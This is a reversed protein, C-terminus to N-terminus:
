ESIPIITELYEEQNYINIIKEVVIVGGPLIARVIAHSNGIKMGEKLVFLSNSGGLSALARRNEGLYIGKVILQSPSIEINSIDESGLEKLKGARAGRDGIKIPIKFPDRLSLPDPIDTKDKFFENIKLTKPKNQKVLDEQGYSFKGLLVFILISKARM